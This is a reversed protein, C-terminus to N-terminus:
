DCRVLSDRAGVKSQEPWVMETRATASALVEDPYFQALVSAPSALLDVNRAAFADWSEDAAGRLRDAIVLMYAVTMTEHYKEPKGIATAFRTLAARFRPIAVLTSAHLLYWRAVRVHAAHTFEAPPLTASEFADVLEADTM